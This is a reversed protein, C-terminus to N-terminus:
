FGTGLSRFFLYKTKTICMYIELVGFSWAGPLEWNQSNIKYRIKFLNAVSVRQSLASYLNLVLCHIYM